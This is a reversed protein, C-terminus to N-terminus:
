EEGRVKKMIDQYRPDSKIFDCWPGWMAPMLMGFDREQYAKELYELAKEGDGLACYVEALPRPSAYGGEARQTLKAISERAKDTQGSLAYALALQQLALTSGVAVGKEAEEIAEDFKRQRMYVYSRTVFVLDFTSDIEAARDVYALASDYEGALAYGYGVDVPYDPNLPDLHMGEKMEAIGQEFRKQSTLFFGYWFRAMAHNPDLEIARRYYEEAGKSDWDWCFKVDAALLIGEVLSADLSLAKETYAKVKPWADRPRLVGYSGLNDYAKAMGAYALAYTSDKDIAQQFYQISKYWDAPTSKIWFYNGKLYAEHAKPNVVRARALREQESPTVAVKIERAIAQAVESQLVLVNELTRTFNEAWLHKEPNAAILQATIRVDDGARLVSGEVVADVGLEHAIQPLSKDTKKFKMVSTRSIVRLAKIKSLEGILADTMGDSFYEQEPDASLNQFPLVAVSTIPEEHPAFFYIRGLIIAAVIVVCAAICLSLTKAPRKRRTTAATSGPAGLQRECSELDALMENVHQYRNEPKKALARDFLPRLEKAMDSRVPALPTAAENMIAYMMAQEYEGKFPLRGTLMEYLIVGLSWIDARRDVEKGGAQEPSMYAVTGLTSSVKTLRIQGALKALGFDLIKAVGEDTVVINAPKIDRHVIGHSHAKALGQGVQM